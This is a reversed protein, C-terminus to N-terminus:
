QLGEGEGAETHQTISGHALHARSPNPDSVRAGARVRTGVRVSVRAGVRVSVRAGVRVRAGLGVSM